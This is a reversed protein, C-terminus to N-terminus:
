GGDVHQEPDAPRHVDGRGVDDTRDLDFRIGLLWPLQSRKPPFTARAWRAHVFPPQLGFVDLVMTKPPYCM